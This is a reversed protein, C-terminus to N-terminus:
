PDNSWCGIALSDVVSSVHAQLWLSSPKCESWDFQIFDRTWFIFMTVCAVMPKGQREERGGEKRREERKGGRKGGGERRRGDRGGGRGERGGERGERGGEKQGDKGGERGGGGDRRRRGEKGERGGEGRGERRNM